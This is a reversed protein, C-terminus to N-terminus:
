LFYLAVLHAQVQTVQLSQVNQVPVIIYLTYKIIWNNISTMAEIM